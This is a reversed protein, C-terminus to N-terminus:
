REQLVNQGSMWREAARPEDRGPWLRRQCIRCFTTCWLKHKYDDHETTTYGNLIMDTQMVAVDYVCLQTNPTSPVLEDFRFSIWLVTFIGRLTLLASTLPISPWCCFFISSMMFLQLSLMWDFHTYPCEMGPGNWDSEFNYMVCMHQWNNYRTMMLIGKPCSFLSLSILSVCLCWVRSSLEITFLMLLFWCPCHCIMLLQLSVHPCLFKM